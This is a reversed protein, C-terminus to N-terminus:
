VSISAVCEDQVRMSVLVVCANMLQHSVSESCPQNLLAMAQSQLTFDLTQQMTRGKDKLM